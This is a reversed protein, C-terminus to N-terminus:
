DECRHQDRTATRDGAVGNARASGRRLVRAADEFARPNIDGDVSRSFSMRASTETRSCQAKRSARQEEPTSCSLSIMPVWTRRSLRTNADQLRGTPPIMSGHSESCASSSPPNTGRFGRNKNSLVFVRPLPPASQLWELPTTHKVSATSDSLSARRAARLMGSAHPFPCRSV